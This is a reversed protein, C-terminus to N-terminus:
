YAVYGDDGAYYQDPEYGEQAYAAQTEADWQQGGAPEQGGWAGIKDAFNRTIRAAAKTWGPNAEQVDGWGEDAHLTNMTQRYKEKDKRVGRCCCCGGLWHVFGCAFNLGGVALGMSSSLGLTMFGMLMYTWGRGRLTGLMKANDTM